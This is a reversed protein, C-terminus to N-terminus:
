SFTQRRRPIPFVRTDAHNLDGRKQSSLWRNHDQKEARAAFDVTRSPIDRIPQFQAYGSLLESVLQGM